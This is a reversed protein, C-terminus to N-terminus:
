SCGALALPTSCRLHRIVYGWEPRIPKSGSSLIARFFGITGDPNDAKNPINRWKFEGMYSVADFKTNGGPATIPKPVLNTFVDTHFLITDEYTATEYAPNIDFKTGKTAGSTAIYPRVRVWAGNTLNWRPLFDDIM